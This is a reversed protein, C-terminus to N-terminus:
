KTALGGFNLVIPREKVNTKIYLTEKFSGERAPNFKLTMSAKKGPAVEKPMEIILCHCSSTSNEIVLPETGDNIFEFSKTTTKGIAADGMTFVHKGLNMRPGEKPEFPSEMMEQAHMGVCAILAFLLIYIKKM